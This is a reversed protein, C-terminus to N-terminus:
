IEEVGDGFACISQRDLLSPAIANTPRTMPFAPASRGWTTIKGSHLRRTDVPCLAYNRDVQDDDSIAGEITELTEPGGRRASALM